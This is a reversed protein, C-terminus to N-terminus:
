FLPIKKGEPPPTAAKIPEKELLLNININVEHM